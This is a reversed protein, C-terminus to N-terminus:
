SMFTKLAFIFVNVIMFFLTLYALEWVIQWSSDYVSITVESSPKFWVKLEEGDVEYSVLEGGEVYVIPNSIGTRSPIRIIVASKVGSIGKAKIRVYGVGSEESIKEMTYDLYHLPQTDTPKKWLTENWIKQCAWLYAGYSWSFNPEGGIGEGNQAFGGNYVGILERWVYLKSSERMSRFADDSNEIAHAMPASWFINPVWNGYGSGEDFKVVAPFNLGELSFIDQNNWLWKWAKKDGFFIAAFLSAQSTRVTSVENTDSRICYNFGGDERRYDELGDILNNYAKRCWEADETRGLIELYPIISKLAHAWIVDIYSEYLKPIDHTVPSYDDWYDHDHPAIMHAGIWNEDERYYVKAWNNIIDLILAECDKLFDYDETARFYEALTYLFVAGYDTARGNAYRTFGYYYANAHLFDAPPSVEGTLPADLFWKIMHKAYTPLFHCLGMIVWATDRMFNQYYTWPAAPVYLKDVDTYYSMMLIHICSTYVAYQWEDPINGMHSQIEDVVAKWFNIVTSYTSDFDSIANRAKSIANALSVEDVVMAIIMEDGTSLNKKGVGWSPVENTVSNQTEDFDGTNVDQTSNGLYYTDTRDCTLAWYEDGVSYAVVYPSADTNVSGTAENSTAFSVLVNIPNDTQLVTVKIYLVNRWVFEELRLSKSGWKYDYVLVGIPRGDIEKFYFKEEDSFEYSIRKYQGTVTDYVGVIPIPYVQKISTSMPSELQGGGAILFTEYGYPQASAIVILKSNPESLYVPSFHYEDLHTM